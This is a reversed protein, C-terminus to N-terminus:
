STPNPIFVLSCQVTCKEFPAENGNEDCIYVTIESLPTRNTPVWLMKNFVQDIKGGGEGKSFKSSKIRRLIPLQKGDGVSSSEIFDTCFFLQRSTHPYVKGTIEFLAVGKGEVDLGVPLSVTERNSKMNVYVANM